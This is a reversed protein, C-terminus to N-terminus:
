FTKQKKIVPNKMHETTNREFYDRTGRKACEQINWNHHDECGVQLSNKGKQEGRQEKRRLSVDICNILEVAKPKIHSLTCEVQDRQFVDATIGFHFCSYFLFGYLAIITKFILLGCKSVLFYLMKAHDVTDDASGNKM